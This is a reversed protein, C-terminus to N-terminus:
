KQLVSSKIANFYIDAMKNYGESKPHFKDASMFEENSWISYCINEIIEVNSM